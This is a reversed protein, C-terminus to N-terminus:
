MGVKGNNNPVHKVLWDISDYADTTENTAAPDALNVESSLKFVGESKFRGRLNQMVYIYGDQEFEKYNPPAQQPAQPPVGYPTRRFLIPLPAKQDSPALIVTQLHVGDRMPIMVEQFTFAPKAASQQPHVGNALLLMAVGAYLLIFKRKM